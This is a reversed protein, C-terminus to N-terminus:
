RPIFVRRRTGPSPRRPSRRSTPRTSRRRHGPRSGPINPQHLFRSPFRPTSSSAVAFSVSSGSYDSTLRVGGVQTFTGFVSGIPIISRGQADVSGTTLYVDTANLTIPADTVTATDAIPESVGSSLTRTVTTVIPNTGAAQGPIKTGIGAFTHSGLVEYTGPAVDPQVTGTTSSTGDGWNITAAFESSLDLGTGYPLTFTAVPGSYLRGEVIQVTPQSPSAIAHVDTVNLTGSAGASAGGVGDVFQITFPTPGPQLYPTIVTEAATTATYIGSAPDFSFNLPTPSSSGTFTATSGSYASTLRHAGAQTFTGVVVGSPIIANGQADSTSDDESVPRATPFIPADAITFTSNITDSAGGAGNRTITLTLPETGAAQNDLKSGIDVYTHSGSVIYSGPVPGATITGSTNSTGDGWNISASYLSSLDISGGFDLNYDAVAGSFASGMTTSLTPQNLSITPPVDTVQVTGGVSSLAGSATNAVQLTFPTSGIALYPSILTDVATSVTNPGGNNALTVVLPTESSTGAFRVFSATSEYASEYASEADIQGAQTFTGVVSGAPIIAQGQNNRSDAALYVTSPALVIPAPTVVISNAIMLSSPGDSVQISIQYGGSPSPHEYTHGADVHFIGGAGRTISSAATSSNDGWQITASFDSALAMPNADQFTALDTPAILSGQQSQPLSPQTSTPTLAQDAVTITASQSDITSDWGDNLTLTMTEPGPARYTHSAMVDFTGGAAANTNPDYVITVASSTNDGWNMMGNYRLADTAGDAAVFTAIQGSFSSGATFGLGPPNTGPLNILSVAM